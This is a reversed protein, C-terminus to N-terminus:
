FFTRWIERVFISGAILFGAVSIIVALAKSFPNHEHGYNSFISGTSNFWLRDGLCAALGAFALALAVIFLAKDDDPIFTSRGGRRSVMGLALCGGVIMGFLFQLIWSLWDANNKM